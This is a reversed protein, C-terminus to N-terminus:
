EYMRVPKPLRILLRVLKKKSLSQAHPAYKAAELYEARRKYQVKNRNVCLNYVNSQRPQVTLMPIGLVMSAADFIKNNYFQM